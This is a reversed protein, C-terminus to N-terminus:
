RPFVPPYPKYIQLGDISNVIYIPYDLRTQVSTTYGPYQNIMRPHDPSSIDFMEVGGDGCALYIVKDLIQISSIYGQTDITSLLIPTLPDHIDIIELKGEAGVLVLDGEAEVSTPALLSDLPISSLYSPNVPDHVDLLRLEDPLGFYVVGDSVDFSYSYANFSSSIVFSSQITPDSPDSVDLIMLNLSTNPEIYEEVGLYIYNGDVLLKRASAPLQSLVVPTAPNSFDVIELYKDLTILYGISDKIEISERLGEFWIGQGTTSPPYESVQIPSAPQKLDFIRMNMIPFFGSYRGTDATLYAYRGDLYVQDARYGPDINTESLLLPEEPDSFDIVQFSRTDKNDIFYNTRCFVLPPGSQVASIRHDQSTYVGIQELEEPDRVDLVNISISSGIYLRNNEFLISIVYDNLGYESIQELVGEPTIRLVIITSGVVLYAIDGNFEVASASDYTHFSTNTSHPHWPDSIDVTSIYYDCGHMGCGYDNVYALHGEIALLTGFDYSSVKTIAQPNSIDFFTFGVGAVVLLSQYMQSHYATMPAHSLMRPNAPQSVDFVYLGFSNSVFALDGSVFVHYSFGEVPVHASISANSAQSYDLVALGEPGLTIYAYANQATMFTPSAPLVVENIFQPTHPDSIDLIDLRNGTGLFALNDNVQFLNNTGGVSSLLQNYNDAPAVTVLPLYLNTPEQEPPTSVAASTSLLLFATVLLPIWLCKNYGIRM